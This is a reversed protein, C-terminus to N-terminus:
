DGGYIIKWDGIQPKRQCLYNKVTRFGLYLKPALFRACAAMHPFSLAGQSLSSTHYCSCPCPRFRRKKIIGHVEWLLDAISCCIFKAHSIEISVYKGDDKQKIRQKTKANRVRGRNDIEYRYDLSPIPEFTSPESAALAQRRLAKPTRKLRCKKWDVLLSYYDSCNKGRKQLKLVHKTKIVRVILQSNIEYRPAEPITLFDEFPKIVYQIKVRVIDRSNTKHKPVVPITVFEKAM